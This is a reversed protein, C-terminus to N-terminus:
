IAEESTSLFSEMSGEFDKPVTLFTKIKRINRLTYHGWCEVNFEGEKLFMIM